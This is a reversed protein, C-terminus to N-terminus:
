KEQTGEFTSFLECAMLQIEPDEDTRLSDLFDMIGQRVLGPRLVKEWEGSRVAHNIMGEISQLVMRLTRPDSVLDVLHSIKQIYNWTVLVPYVSAPRMKLMHHMLTAIRLKGRVSCNGYAPLLKMPTNADILVEFITMGRKPATGM